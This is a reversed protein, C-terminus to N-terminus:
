LGLQLKCVDKAQQEIGNAAEVVDESSLESAAGEIRARASESLGAPTQGNVFDDPNAGVDDLTKAFADIAGLLTQWEDVLDDPAEDGLDHLKARHNLLVLGSTDDQMTAFMEQDAKLASCYSTEQDRCAAVGSVLVVALAAAAACRAGRHMRM